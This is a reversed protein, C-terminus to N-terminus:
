RLKGGEIDLATHPAYEVAAKRSPDFDVAKCHTGDQPQDASRSAYTLSQRLGSM